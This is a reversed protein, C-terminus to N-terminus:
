LTLRGLQIDRTRAGDGARCFTRSDLPKKKGRGAMPCWSLTGHDCWPRVLKGAHRSWRTRWRCRCRRARGSLSAPTTTGSARPATGPGHPSPSRRSGPTSRSASTPTGARTRRPGSSGRRRPPRTSCGGAGTTRTSRRGGGSACVLAEPDVTASEGVQARLDLLDAALPAVIPVDRGTRTKTTDRFEGAVFVRDIALTGGTPSLDLVDSWRVALAEETRLGGAYQLGWLVRDRLTPLEIRIREAQEPSLATRPRRITPPKKVSALPNAPLKGEDVAAGLAASLVRMVNASNTPTSGDALVADRWERLRQPGLESLRVGGIYPVIWRDIVSARSIVTSRAWTERNSTFWVELWDELRDRSAPGPRTSAWSARTSCSASSRRRPRRPRSRAPSRGAARGSERVKVQWSPKGAKSMRKHIM